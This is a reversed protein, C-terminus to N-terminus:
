CRDHVSYIKDIRHVTACLFVYQECLYEFDVGYYIFIKKNIIESPSMDIFGVFPVFLSYNATYDLWSNSSITITGTKFYRIADAQSAVYACKLTDSTWTGFKVSANLASVGFAAALDFPYARASAIAELPTNAFLNDVANKFNQTNLESFLSAMGSQSLLMKANTTYSKRMTAAPTYSINTHTVLLYRTVDDTIDIDSSGSATIVSLNQKSTYPRMTDIIMNNYSNEQRKVIGSLERLSIYYSMLVDVSLDIRWINHSVSTINNVYYYRKFNPIQVYNFDPVKDYECTISPKIISSQERLTGSLTDIYTIDKIVRNKESKNDYLILTLDSTDIESAHAELYVGQSSHPPNSFIIIGTNKDYTYSCGTVTVTEPM